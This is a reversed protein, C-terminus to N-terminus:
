SNGSVFVYSAANREAEWGAGKGKVWELVLLM